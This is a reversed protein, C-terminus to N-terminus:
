RDNVGDEYGPPLCENYSIGHVECRAYAESLYASRESASLRGPNAPLATLVFGVYDNTVFMFEADEYSPDDCPTGDRKPTVKLDFVQVTEAKWCYQGADLVSILGPGPIGTSQIWAITGSSAFDDSGDGSCQGNPAFLLRLRASIAKDNADHDDLDKDVASNAFDLLYGTAQTAPSTPIKAAVERLAALANGLPTRDRINLLMLEVTLGTYQQDIQNLELWDVISYEVALSVSGEETDEHFNVESMLPYLISKGVGPRATVEAKALIVVSTDDTFWGTDRQTILRRLSLWLIDGSPDVCQSNAGDDIRILRSGGQAYASAPLYCAVLAVSFSLIFCLTRRNFRM